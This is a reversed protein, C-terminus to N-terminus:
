KNKENELSFMKVKDDIFIILNSSFMGVLIAVLLMSYFETIDVDKIANSVSPAVDLYPVLLALFLKSKMGVWSFAAMLGSGFILRWGGFLSRASFLVRVLAALSGFFLPILFLIVVNYFNTIFGITESTVKFIDSNSTMFEWMLYIVFVVALLGYFYSIRKYLKARANKKDESLSKKYQDIVNKYQNIVAKERELESFLEENELSLNSVLNKNNEVELRQERYAAEVKELQRRLREEIEHFDETQKSAVNQFYERKNREDELERKLEYIQDEVELSTKAMDDIM